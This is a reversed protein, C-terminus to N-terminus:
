SGNLVKLMLTKFDPPFFELGETKIKCPFTTKELFAKNTQKNVDTSFDEEEWQDSSGVHLFLVQTEM